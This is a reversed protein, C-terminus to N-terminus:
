AQQAVGLKRYRELATSLHKRMASAAADPDAALLASLIDTHEDILLQEADRRTQADPPASLRVRPIASPGFATMTRTFFPNSTAAAIALHFAWDQDASGQGAAVAEQMRTLQLSIESIQSPRARIAALRAAEVEVARRLELCDLIEAHTVAAIDVGETRPSSRLVYAGSGRRSAIMGLSKLAALAERIVVRSTSFRETLSRESPLRMGPAWQGSEIEQRLAHEVRQSAPFEAEM